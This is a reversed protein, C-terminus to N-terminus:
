AMHGEDWNALDLGALIERIVRETDIVLDTHSRQIAKSIAQPYKGLAEAIAVQTHGEKVARFIEYQNDTMSEIFVHSMNTLADLANNSLPQDAVLWLGFRGSTKLADLALSADRFVPGGMQRIAGSPYALRGRAVVFRFGALDRLVHRVHDVVDYIDSLNLFLGAFEDGYNIVLESSLSEGLKKNIETLTQDLVRITQDAVEPSLETSAKLDALLLYPDSSQNM